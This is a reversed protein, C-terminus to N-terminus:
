LPVVARCQECWYHGLGLGSGWRHDELCVLGDTSLGCATRDAGAAVAHCIGTPISETYSPGLKGGGPYRRQVKEVSEAAVYHDAM